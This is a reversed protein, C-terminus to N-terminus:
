GGQFLDVATRFMDGIWTRLWQAEEPFLVRAGVLLVTGGLILLVKQRGSVNDFFGKAM